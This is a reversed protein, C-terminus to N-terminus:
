PEKVMRKTETGCTECCYRVETLETLPMPRKGKLVMPERCGPCIPVIPSNRLRSDALSV